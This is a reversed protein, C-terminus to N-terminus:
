SNSTLDDLTETTGSRGTVFDQLCLHIGKWPIALIIAQVVMSKSSAPSRSDGSCAAQCSLSMEIIVTTGVKSNRWNVSSGKRYELKTYNKTRCLCGASHSDLGTPRWKNSSQQPQKARTEVLLAAVSGKLKKLDDPMGPKGEVSYLSARDMIEVAAVPQSKLQATAECATEVDSFFM